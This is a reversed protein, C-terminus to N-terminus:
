VVGRARLESSRLAQYKPAQGVNLRERVFSLPLPLLTEWPQAPFWAARKGRVFGDAVLWADPGTLGKGFAAAIILAIGPHWNQALTFALLSLEGLVDGQYGMVAHWLDHTDRMRSRQWRYRDDVNEREGRRAAELLGEASINEAEVFALYAHALSGEPMARLAARDRLMPVLDPEDNLLTRGADTTELRARLREPAAGPLADILTFVQPLDDPNALLAKLARGARPVDYRNTTQM